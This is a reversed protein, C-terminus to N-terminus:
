SPRKLVGESPQLTTTGDERKHTWAAKVRHSLDMGLVLQFAARLEPHLDLYDRLTSKHWTVCRTPEAAVISVPAPENTIFSMQGILEGPGLEVVAQGQAEM